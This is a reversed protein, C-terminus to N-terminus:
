DESGDIQALRDVKRFTSLIEHHKEAFRWNNCYLSQCLPYFVSGERAIEMYRKEQMNVLYYINNDWDHFFRQIDTNM